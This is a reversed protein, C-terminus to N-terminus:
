CNKDKGHSPKELGLAQFIRSLISSRSVGAQEAIVKLQERTTSELNLIRERLFRVEEQLWKKEMSLMYVRQILLPIINGSQSQNETIETELTQTLVPQYESEVREIELSIGCEKFTYLMEPDLTGDSRTQLIGLEVLKSVTSESLGSKRSFEEITYGQSM